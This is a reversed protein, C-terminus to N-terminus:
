KIGKLINKCGPGMNFLFDIISLGTIFGKFCQLYNPHVFNYYLLNINNEKMRNEDQYKGGGFGSLYKDIKFHLCLNILRDTSKGKSGASSEFVIKTKIDLVGNIWKILDVNLDMLKQYSKNIIGFMPESFEDYYKAKNYNTKISNIIKRKWNQSNDIIVDEVNQFRKGKSLVPVTIWQSESSINKIKVRNTYGRKEFQVNDLLVFIDSRLIKFFFGIWPLFNPQHVALIM